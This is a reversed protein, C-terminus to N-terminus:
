SAAPNVTARSMVESAKRTSARDVCLKILVWSSTSRLSVRLHIILGQSSGRPCFAQRGLLEASFAQHFMRSIGLPQFSLLGM